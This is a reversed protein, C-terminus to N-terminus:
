KLDWLRKIQRRKRSCSGNNGGRLQGYSTRLGAAAQCRFGETCFRLIMRCLQSKRGPSFGGSEGDPDIGYPEPLLPKPPTVEVLVRSKPWTFSHRYVCARKLPVSEYWRNLGPHRPAQDRPENLQNQPNNLFESPQCRPPFSTYGITGNLM